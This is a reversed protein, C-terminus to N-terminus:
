YKSTKCTDRQWGGILDFDRTQRGRCKMKTKTKVEKAEYVAVVVTEGSELKVVKFEKVEPQKKAM